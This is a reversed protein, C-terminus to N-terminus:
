KENPTYIGIILHTPVKLTGTPTILTTSGGGNSPVVELVDRIVVDYNNITDIPRSLTVNKM